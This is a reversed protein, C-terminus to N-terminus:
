QAGAVERAIKLGWSSVALGQAHREILRHAWAKPHAPDPRAIGSLVQAVKAPDAKPAPLKPASRDPAANCLDRFTNVNPPKDDPLNDLAYKIRDPAAGFAALQEAWDAKVDALDVGAWKGLFQQGYRVTLRQWIRDMWAEPLADSM